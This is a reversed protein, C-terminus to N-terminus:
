LCRPWIAIAEAEVDEAGELRDAYEKFSKAVAANLVTNPSSLNLESGPMRFEFRNGTFAFPSTRNRDTNDQELSPLVESGLDMRGMKHSIADEGAAIADVISTLEDGLFISVIAPPAENAGLRHDNGASAVTARLLEQYDDVGRSSPLSRSCSSTTTRRTM